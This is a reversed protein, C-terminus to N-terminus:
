MSIGGLDSISYYQGLNVVALNEVSLARVLAKQRRHERHERDDEDSCRHGIRLDLKEEAVDRVSKRRRGTGIVKGKHRLFVDGLDFLVAPELVHFDLQDRYAFGATVRLYRLEHFCEM